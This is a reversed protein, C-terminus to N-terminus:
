RGKTFAHPKPIDVGQERAREYWRLSSEYDRGAAKSGRGYIDGLKKQAQAHGANGADLYATLAAHDDGRTEHALGERYRGDSPHSVQPKSNSKKQRVSKEKAKTRPKKLAAKKGSGSHQSAAPGNGKDQAQAHVGALPAGGVVWVFMLAKLWVRLHPPSM